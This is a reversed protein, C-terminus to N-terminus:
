SQRLKPAALSGEQVRRWAEKITDSCGEFSHWASEWKFLSNRRSSYNPGFDLSSSSTPVLHLPCHDSKITPLVSVISSSFRQHWRPSAMARDLRKENFGEDLRNNSWTFRPGQTKVDSLKCAELAERFIEMHKYPRPTADWKESHCIIENFDGM